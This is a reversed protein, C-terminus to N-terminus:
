ARMRKWEGEVLVELWCQCKEGCARLKTSDSEFTIHYHQDLRICGPFYGPQAGGVKRTMHGDSEYEGAYALCAECHDPHDPNLVWRIPLMHWNEPLATGDTTYRTPNM